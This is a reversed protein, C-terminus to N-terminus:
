GLEYFSVGVREIHEKLDVSEITHFNIVDFHYPMATEENLEHSINRVVEYNLDNGKLAIDVDSGAKYNGKARSGFIVGQEVSNHKRLIAVIANMDKESLGFLM